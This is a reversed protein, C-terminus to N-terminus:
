IDGMATSHQLSNQGGGHHKLHSIAAYFSLNEPKLKNGGDAM